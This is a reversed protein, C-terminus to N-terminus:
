AYAYAFLSGTPVTTSVKLAWYAQDVTIQLHEVPQIAVELPGLSEPHVRRGSEGKRGKVGANTKHKTHIAGERGEPPAEQRKQRQKRPAYWRQTRPKQPNTQNGQEAGRQVRVAFDKELQLTLECSRFLPDM